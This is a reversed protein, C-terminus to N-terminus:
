KPPTVNQPTANTSPPETVFGIRSLGAQQAASMVAAIMQYRSAQDARLHSWALAHLTDLPVDILDFDALHEALAESGLAYSGKAKPLEQKLWAKYDTLAKVTAANVKAFEQQLAPDAVGTFAGPAATKFFDISGDINQLAVEVKFSRALCEFTSDHFWFIFHQLDRWMAPRYQPHVSNITEIEKLWRSNVVRQAAYAELGKGQLPHGSFVEDNPDGLKASVCM